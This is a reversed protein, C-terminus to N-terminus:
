RLRPLPRPPRPCLPRLYYRGAGSLLRWWKCAVAKAERTSAGARSSAAGVGCSATCFQLLM